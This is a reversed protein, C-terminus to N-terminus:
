PLAWWSRALDEWTTGPAPTGKRQFWWPVHAYRHLLAYALSRRQWAEDRETAPLGYGDLLRALWTADGQTTFLGVSAFEYGAAGVMAPELDLLGSLRWRDGVQAALVHTTMVETHLLVGRADTPLPVGDLFADLSALWPAELGLRRQRATAGARQAALFAPWDPRPVDLGETPLAHLAALAEGLREMLDGQQGAPISPWVEELPWGALRSMAIWTWGDRTGEERIVPTPIPLRHALARLAGRETRGGAADCGPFLKVVLDRGVGFVPLSGETFPEPPDRSWGREAALDAVAERIESARGRVALWAEETDAPPLRRRTM